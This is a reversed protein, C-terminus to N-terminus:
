DGSILQGNTKACLRSGEQTSEYWRARYYMLGNEQDIERGTHTYRTTTTRSDRERIFQVSHQFYCSRASDSLNRTTGLHDALFYSSTGGTTQRLKNM